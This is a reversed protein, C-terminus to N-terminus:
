ASADDGARERHRDICLKASEVTPHLGLYVGRRYAAYKGSAKHYYVGRVGTTNDIRLRSNLANGARTIERLNERRNDLGNMNIHDILVAGPLILRHMYERRGNIWARAYTNRGSHHIHWSYDRVLPYDADDILVEGRGNSLNLIMHSM